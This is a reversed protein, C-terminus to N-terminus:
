KRTYLPHKAMIATFILISKTQSWMQEEAMYNKKTLKNTPTNKLFIAILM